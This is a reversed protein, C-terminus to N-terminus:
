KAGGQLVGAMAECVGCDERAEAYITQARGILFELEKVRAEARKLAERLASIERAAAQAYGAGDLLEETLHQLWQEPTLDPRDLSVGYKSLGAADRSLLQHVLSQTIQSSV